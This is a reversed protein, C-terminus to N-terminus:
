LVGALWVAGWIVAVVGGVMVAVTAATMAREVITM